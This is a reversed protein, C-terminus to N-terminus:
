AFTARTVASLGIYDGLGVFAFSIVSLGVFTFSVLGLRVFSIALLDVSFWFVSVDVFEIAVVVLWLLAIAFILTITPESIAFLGILTCGALM